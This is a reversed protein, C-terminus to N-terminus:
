EQLHRYREEEEGDLFCALEQQFQARAVKSLRGPLATCYLCSGTSCKKHGKFIGLDWYGWCGCGQRSPRQQRPGRNWGEGFMAKGVATIHDRSICAGDHGWGAMGQDQGVCCTSFQIGLEQAVENLSRFADSPSDVDAPLLGESEMRQRIHHYKTGPGNGCMMFSTKVRTVGLRSFPGLVTNIAKQTDNRLIEGGPATLVLLPDYRLTVGKPEILGSELVRALGAYNEQYSPIGPEVLTGGFGTVTLQVTLAIQNDFYVELMRRLGPHDVLNTIPGKTWLVAAPVHDLDLAKAPIRSGRGLYVPKKGLMVAAGEDPCCRVMDIVRSM